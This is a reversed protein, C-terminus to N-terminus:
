CLPLCLSRTIRRQRLRGMRRQYELWFRARGAQGAVERFQGNGRNHFLYNHDLATVYLDPRGDNDYDGVAAGMGYMEVELGSGQIVNSFTGNKNNRYLAALNRQRSRLRRAHRGVVAMREAGKRRSAIERERSVWKRNRFTEVENDTWDRSNVIFIDQYGDGNYDIFAVGSGMTEPMLKGGYAGSYHKFHIGARAAIDRFHVHIPAPATCGTASSAVSPGSSFDHQKLACGSAFLALTFLVTFLGTRM